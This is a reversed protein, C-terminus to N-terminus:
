SFHYRHYYQLHEYRRLLAAGEDSLATTFVGNEVFSGSSHVVPLVARAERTFQMFADGRWGLTEFLLDMLYGPSLTPGEGSVDRGLQARAADNAWILYPTSWYALFGEETSQDLPLGADQALSVGSLIPKHDGYVLLVVPLEDGCLEDVLDSLAQQTRWLGDLYNNVVCRAVDTCDASDWYLGGAPLTDEAYPGHGQITINFSFVPQGSEAERHLQRLLYPFYLQDDGSPLEEEGVSDTFAFGDFGLYPFINVRNYFHGVNPHSGYAVYGNDRLVRVYSAADRRYNQLGYSGTLLCREANITGGGTTNPTLLGHLSEAELAHLVAYTEPAIGTFGMAELDAFSELQIVLLNIRSDAPIDAEGYQALAEAAAAESYGEPPLDKSKTISFLFPYVFGKTVFYAEEGVADVYGINETKEYYIVTDFYLFHWLPFLSLLALAALVLRTRTRLVARTVLLVALLILLAGLAAAVVRGTPRMDYQGAIQLGASISSLDSFTFPEYRFKLKYFDGLSACVVALATFLCAPTQRAFLCLLLLQLLLVPLWNLLFIQPHTFYGYFVEWDYIGFSLLLSLVTIGASSGALVAANWLHFLARRGGSALEESRRATFIAKQAAARM